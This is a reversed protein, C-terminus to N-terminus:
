HGDFRTEIGDLSLQDSTRDDLKRASLIAQQEGSM